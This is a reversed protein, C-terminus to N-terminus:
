FLPKISLMKDLKEEVATEVSFVFFAATEIWLLKIKVNVFMKVGILLTNFLISHNLSPRMRGYIEM